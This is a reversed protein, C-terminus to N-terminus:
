RDFVLRCHSQDLSYRRRLEATYERYNRALKGIIESNSERLKAHRICDTITNVAALELQRHILATMAYSRDESDIRFSRVTAIPSAEAANQAFTRAEDLSPFKQTPSAFSHANPVSSKFFYATYKKIVTIV